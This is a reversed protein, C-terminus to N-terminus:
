KQCKVWGKETFLFVHEHKPGDKVHQITGFLKPTIGDNDLSIYAEARYIRKAGSLRIILQRTM